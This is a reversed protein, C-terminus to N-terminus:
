RPALSIEGRRCRRAFPEGIVLDQGRLKRDRQDAGAPAPAGSAHKGAGAFQLGFGLSVEAKRQGAALTPSQGLDAAVHFRRLAHHPQQLAIDAAALGDDRQERHQLRDLAAGLRGQHRRGLDQRPLMVRNQLAERSRRPDFYPQQGPSLLAAAAVRHQRAEGRPQGRDNHPRMRQQLGIDFEAVQREGDDVLLM